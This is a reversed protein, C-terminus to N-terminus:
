FNLSIFDFQNNIYYLLAMIVPLGVLYGNRIFAQKFDVSSPISSDILVIVLFIYIFKTYLNNEFYEYFYMDFFYLAILLMLPSMGIFFRNYWTPNAIQVSGLTYYTKGNSGKNSSPLISFSRPKGNLFLAVVFHTLEHLITGSINVLWTGILSASANRKLREILIVVFIFIYVNNQILYFLDNEINM